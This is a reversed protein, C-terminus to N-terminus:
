RELKTKVINGVGVVLTAKGGADACTLSPSADAATVYLGGNPRDKRTGNADCFNVHFPKGPEAMVAICLVDKRCVTYCVNETHYGLGSGGKREKKGLKDGDLVALVKM